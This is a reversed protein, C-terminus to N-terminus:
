KNKVWLKKKKKEKPLDANDKANKLKEKKVKRRKKVFSIINSYFIGLIFGILFVIYVLLIVPVNFKWFFFRIPTSQVNMASIAVILGVVIFTTITKARM